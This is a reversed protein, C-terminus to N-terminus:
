EKSEEPKETKHNTRFYKKTEFLVYAGIALFVLSFAASFVFTVINFNIVISVITAIAGVLYSLFLKDWGKKNMAKLPSIAMAMLIGQIVLAAVSIVSAILWLWSYSYASSYMGAYAGYTHLATELGLIIPIAILMAGITTIIALATLVAGILTLWWANNALWKTLGEPLRPLPKLWGEIMKEIKEIQM